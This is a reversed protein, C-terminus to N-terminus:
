SIGYYNVIDDETNLQGSSAFEKYWNITRYISVENTWKPKWGLHLLSKNINLSLLKAEHPENEENKFEFNIDKWITKSLELVQSVSLTNEIYPGFNWSSAFETKGSLLAQGIMLYGHIPELVHQWPRTAYPSRIKAFEGKVASRILDPILRDNSWDGGGIVNGARASAILTNHKTQFDKTNFFSDRYSSIVIEACAKSSSYPDYGGLRDTEVYGIEQNLNEYCKDTTIVVISKISDCYKAAELVNVTGIINTQYTELPNVYSYRVLPQAALHFIIDPREIELVHKLVDFNCIDEYYSKLDLNLLSYHSPKTNPPLSYGIVTAGLKQLVLAMWSGKFGTHGTLLVRKGNYIGNYMKVMNEM